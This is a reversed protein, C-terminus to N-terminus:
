LVTRCTSPPAICCECHPQISEQKNGYCPLARSPEPPSQLAPHVKRAHLMHMGDLANM